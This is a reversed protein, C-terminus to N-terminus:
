HTLAYVVINTGMRLAEQRKEESDNHVEQNEWGDGLDCEYTYFLVLREEHFIGFAQPSKGDHEHIKPLGKSFKYHSSFIKHSFPIEVLEKEPFVKKIERRFNKDLGYNDDVHLFGGNTLYNKLIEGEEESFKINGHGTLYLYPLTYLNEDKLEAYNDSVSIKISTNDSIFRALNKISTPNGYWDGGGSYKLRTIKFKSDVKSQNQSFTFSFSILLLILIFFRM